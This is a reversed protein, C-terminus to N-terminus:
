KALNRNDIEPLNKEEGTIRNGTIGSLVFDLQSLITDVVKKQRDLDSKNEEQLVSFISPVYLLLFKSRLNHNINALLM